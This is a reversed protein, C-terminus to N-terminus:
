ASPPENKVSAGDSQASAAARALDAADFVFVEDRTMVFSLNFLRLFDVGLLIDNGEKELIIPGNAHRPGFDVRGEAVPKSGVSGDAM